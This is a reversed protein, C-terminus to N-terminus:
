FPKGAAGLKILRFLFIVRQVFLGVAIAFLLWFIVYGPIGLYHSALISM